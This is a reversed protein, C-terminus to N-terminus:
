ELFDHFAAIAFEFKLALPVGTQIQASGNVLQTAKFLDSAPGGQIHDTMQKIFPGIQFSEPSNPM